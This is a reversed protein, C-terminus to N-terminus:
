PKLLRLPFPLKNIKISPYSNSVSGFGKYFNALGAQNSGEFDFVINQNCYKQIVNDILFFMASLQKGQSSTGSFLFTIKTKAIIFIAGALLTNNTSAVVGLKLVKTHKEVEVILKDLLLYEKQNLNKVAAGRNNRFLQIISQVSIDENILLSNANAKKLNRKTNSAYNKFIEHYNSNLSLEFNANHKVDVNVIASPNASNLNIEILKFTHPIAAIFQQLLQTDIKSSSFVGLQQVFFPNYLYHIGIKTRRTLPMVAEYNNLVLAEWGVCVVDLYWAYAYILENCSEAITKNWLTKDIDSHKLFRIV